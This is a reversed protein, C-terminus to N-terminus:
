ATSGPGYGGFSYDRRDAPARRERGARREFDPAAAARQRRDAQSRRETGTRNDLPLRPPALRDRLVPGARHGIGRLIYADRSPDHRFGVLRALRLVRSSVQLRRRAPGM